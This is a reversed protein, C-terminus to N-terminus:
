HDKKCVCTLNCLGDSLVTPSYTSYFMSIYVSVSSYHKFWTIMTVNGVFLNENWQQEGGEKQYAANPQLFLFSFWFRKRYVM